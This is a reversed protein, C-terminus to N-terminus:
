TGWSLALVGAVFGVALGLVAGVFFAEHESM